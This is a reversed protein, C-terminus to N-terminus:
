AVSHCMCAIYFVYMGCHTAYDKPAALLDEVLKCAKCIALSQYQGAKQKNLITNYVKRHLRWKDGYPLLGSTFDVGFSPARTSRLRM